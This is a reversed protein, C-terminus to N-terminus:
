RHYPDPVDSTLTLQAIGAPEVLAPQPATAVAFELEVIGCRKAGLVPQVQDPLVAWTTPVWLHHTGNIDLQRYQHVHGSMVLAAPARGLLGDLRERAPQPWFRYAPSGALEADAATVPKHAILALRHGRDRETLQEELWSWQRTEAELGCGLLQANIALM